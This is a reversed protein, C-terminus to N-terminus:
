TLKPNTLNLLTLNPEHRTCSGLQKVQFHRSRDEDQRRM